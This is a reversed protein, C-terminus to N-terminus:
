SILYYQEVKRIANWVDLAEQYGYRENVYLNFSGERVNMANRAIFNDSLYQKAWDWVNIVCDYHEGLGIGEAKVARAFEIKSCTIRTADVFIPFFFPSFGKHFTYPSCVLSEKLYEVLRGVFANRRDITDQLRKLSSIGIACSIENTNFNLAPFLAHSPNRLDLDDRWVPKGRDSQALAKRHTEIDKTLVLGGSSGSSLSKRYMTSFASIDGFTGVRKGNWVAGVAQSCDEVVKINRAHAEEVLRDIELPQGGCHVAFLASTNPTIRESFQEVGINYSGPMSDALVPILGQLIICSLPGSDTVPSIVVESKPPLDLAALAIYCAATGTAVADAYGGGMFDVFTECFEREFVGEYPPDEGRSLYYETVRAVLRIEEEGFAHRAPMERARVPNGGNIALGYKDKSLSM